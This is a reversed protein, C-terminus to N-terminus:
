GKNYHKHCEAVKDRLVLYDNIAGPIPSNKALKEVADALENWEQATYQVIAPCSNLSNIM